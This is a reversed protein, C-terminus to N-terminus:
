LSIINIFKTQCSWEFQFEKERVVNVFIKIVMGYRVASVIASM